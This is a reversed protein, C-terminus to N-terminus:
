ADSWCSCGDGNPNLKLHLWNFSFNWLAARDMAKWPRWGSWDFRLQLSGGHFLTRHWWRQLDKNSVHQQELIADHIHGHDHRFFDTPGHHGLQIGLRFSMRRGKVHVWTAGDPSNGPGLAHVWWCVHEKEGLHLIM